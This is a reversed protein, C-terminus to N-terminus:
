TIPVDRQHVVTDVTEPNSKIEFIGSDEVLVLTGHSREQGVLDIARRLDTTDVDIRIRLVPWAQEWLM